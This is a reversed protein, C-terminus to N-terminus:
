FSKLFLNYCNVLRQALQDNFRNFDRINGDGELSISEADIYLVDYPLSPTNVTPTSTNGVFDFLRMADDDDILPAEFEVQQADDVDDNHSDGGIDYEADDVADDNVPVSTSPRPTSLVDYRGLEPCDQLGDMAVIGCMETIQVDDADLEETSDCSIEGGGTIRRANKEARINALKSKVKSKLDAYCQFISWFLQSPTVKM